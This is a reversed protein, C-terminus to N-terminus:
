DARGNGAIQVQEGLLKEIAARPILFRKGIRVLGPLEGRGAAAYAASRSIGLLRAAEPVTVTRREM